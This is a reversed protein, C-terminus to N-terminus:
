THRHIYVCVYINHLHNILDKEGGRKITLVQAKLQKLRNFCFRFTKDWVPSM